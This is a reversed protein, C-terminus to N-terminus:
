ETHSEQQNVAKPKAPLRAGVRKQRGCRRPPQTTIVSNTATIQRAVYDHISAVVVRHARGSHFGQLKGARLLGYLHSM